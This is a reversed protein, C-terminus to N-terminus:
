DIINYYVDTDLKLILYRARDFSAIKSGESVDYHKLIHKNFQTLSLDLVFKCLTYILPTTQKKWALDFREVTDFKPDIHPAICRKVFKKDAETVRKNADLESLDPQQNGTSLDTSLQETEM